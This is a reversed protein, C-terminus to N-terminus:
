YVTNQPDFNTWGELWNDSADRFAGVYGNNGDSILNAPCYNQGTSAPDTLGLATEEMVKNNISTTFTSAENLFFEHSFSVKTADTINMGDASYQDLYINNGDSGVVGMGAFIINKLTFEGAKAFAPTSGLAGDIIIGIPYGVALTNEVNLKSSRRIQMASQFLGLSAGNGNLHNADIYDTTNNATYDFNNKAAGPGIFTVHKFTATTLPTATADGAANNDSEFGNSKSIDAIKPDRISLCYEVNGSFGNDTDFEDDWGKYAVLNTCNVTGGFWEFSDDSSYSVQLHDVTTGSGVSGFTIGNIEKNPSFPYGAFEVRVYQYIGSNDNAVTGGHKTRPGGEIQQNLTGYNNPAKGCIILGGWDGPQRHGAAEESTMVIPANKTGKMEVYGGPEVILAAKTQKDGKIITGAPIRLKAGNAVYVWGKLLYTGQSLTVDGTFEFEQSGNGIETGNNFLIGSSIATTGNYTVVPDTITTGGNDGNNDSSCATMISGTAIAACVTFAWGFKKIEM